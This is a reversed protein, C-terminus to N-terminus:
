ALSALLARAARLDTTEFGETFRGYVTGLINRAEDQQGSESLLRALTTASRLEYAPASQERACKLSENLCELAAARNGGQMALVEAKLRLLEAMGFISGSSTAGSIAGNITLVAEELYGAKRLGETLTGAFETLFLNRRESHLEKLAERLLEIGIEVEGRAVALEGKLATGIARYPALLHREANEILWEVLHNARDFDGTWLFVQASYLLSMCVSVPQDGTAAEDIAEQAKQLAQNPLGRLWLSRALVTLARSRHEYGFFKPNFAGLEVARIMGGECYRQAAAQNGLFHYCIGFMWETMVLGAGNKAADAVASAREAVALSSRFDGTRHFFIDQGALLELQHKSDNLNEALALGREIAARVEDANGSTFMSSLALAEQLIMEARTGRSTEDVFALARECYRRCEDLLSLRILLPAACTALEVGIVRDGRDSLAWDLAARVNGIHPIYETLDQEGSRSQLNQDQLYKCFTTAHRRAMRDAERHDALKALAYARTIDLLRYYTSKHSHTTSILTKALLSTVAQTVSADDVEAEAAVECAAKITFDGVFVSLRCLVRKELDSLLNYSWDLMSNLTQHRPLATRRGSWIVKFRNDLLEATGSIGLSGARSAAVEIALPIGDLRRCINAVVPADADSLECHYGGALAREMFLQAAPYRLAEAAQLRPNNPPGDLSYLIHVHEGEARLAERSTALIHTQPAENVVSEAFQAAADIVHECNDLVILVEKDGLFGLLSLLPDQSQTMVGLASAVAIPVLHSDALTSLDVFCIAGCFSKILAHAAAIAVTTKGVGGPGVISVFRWATLKALLTRVTEERGIMRTLRAPLKHDRRIHGPPAAEPLSRGAASRAVSAVFCYGRGAVNSVYRAGDVGDGLAKRLAAVHVRLNADDVTVDPWVRAVLEKHSIVEGAREVLAILLDLARGGIPISDNGKKLLREAVLLRFPGFTLGDNIRSGARDHIAALESVRMPMSTTAGYLELGIPFRRPAKTGPSDTLM